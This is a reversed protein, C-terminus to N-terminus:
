YFLKHPCFSQDAAVEVFIENHCIYMRQNAVWTLENIAPQVVQAEVERFEVSLYLLSM